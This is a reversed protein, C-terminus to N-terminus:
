DLDLGEVPEADELDWAMTMRDLENDPQAIHFVANAVRLAARFGARVVVDGVVDAECGVWLVDPGRALLFLDDGNLAFRDIPLPALVYYRGSRGRWNAVEAATRLDDFRETMAMM